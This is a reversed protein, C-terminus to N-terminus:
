KLEPYWIFLFYTSDDTEFSARVTGSTGNLVAKKTWRNTGEVKVYNDNLTKMFWDQADLNLPMVAYSMCYDSGYFYFLWVANGDDFKLFRNGKADYDVKIDQSNHMDRIGKETLNLQGFLNLSILSLFIIIATKMTNM